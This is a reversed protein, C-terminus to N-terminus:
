SKGELNLVQQKRPTKLSAKTDLHANFIYLLPIIRLLTRFLIIRFGRQLIVYLRVLVFLNLVINM